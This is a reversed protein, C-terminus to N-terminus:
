KGYHDLALILNDEPDGQHIAFHCNSCLLMLDCMRVRTSKTLSGLPVVHHVEIIDSDLFPYAESFNFDCVECFVRGNERVFESVKRDRFARDREIQRHLVLKREGEFAFPDSSVAQTGNSSSRSYPSNIKSLVAVDARPIVKFKRSQYPDPAETLKPKRNHNKDAAALAMAKAEGEGYRRVSFKQVRRDHNKDYWTAEWYIYPQKRGPEEHRKIREAPDLPLSKAHVFKTPGPPRSALIKHRHILAARFADEPSGEKSDYFMDNTREGDVMIRVFWGHTRGYDYRVIGVPVRFVEPDGLALELTEALYADDYKANLASV